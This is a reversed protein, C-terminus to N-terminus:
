QATELAEVLGEDFQVGVQAQRERLFERVLSSLQAAEFASEVDKRVEALPPKRAAVSDTVQMIVYGGEASLPDTYHHRPLTAIAEAAAVGLHVEWDQASRAGQPLSVLDPGAMQAKVSAFSEGSELRAHAVDAQSRADSGRFVMRDIAVRSPERFRAGHEAYFRRLAEETATTPVAAASLSAGVAQHIAGSIRDDSHLLGTEGVYQHLLREEVMGQLIAKREAVPVDQPSNGTDKTLRATLMALSIDADGVKAVAGPQLVPLEPARNLWQVALTVAVGAAFALVVQLKM